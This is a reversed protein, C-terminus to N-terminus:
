LIVGMQELYKLDNENLQDKTAKDVKIKDFPFDDNPGYYNDTDFNKLCEERFHMYLPGYKTQEVGKKDRWTSQGYSKVAMVDNVVIKKGCNGQCKSVKKSLTKLLHLEFEKM